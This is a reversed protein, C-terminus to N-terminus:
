TIRRRLITWKHEPTRARMQETAGEACQLRLKSRKFTTGNLDVGSQKLNEKKRHVTSRHFSSSLHRCLSPASYHSFSNRLWANRQSTSTKQASSRYESRSHILSICCYKYIIIFIVSPFFSFHKSTAHFPNLVFRWPDTKNCLTSCCTQLLNQM